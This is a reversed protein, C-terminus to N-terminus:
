SGARAGSGGTAGSRAGGRPGGGVGARPHARPPQGRRRGGAGAGGRQLVIPGGDPIGPELLQVTCGTVKAGHELAAEVAHMGGGFAPLLSPHVNLIADPFADLFEDSLIRNYGACVVLAVAPPRLRDRMARDRAREDRGYDGVPMVEAPVGWRGAMELAGADRRNSIVLAIRAPFGPAAAAACLADLNSGRGSALVGVRTGGSVPPDSPARGASPSRAWGSSRFAPLPRARRSAAAAPVVVVMGIAWTSPGGCRRPRSAAWRRWRPSCRRCRGPTSPRDPGGTGDPLIRPVNGLLGGGTIHALGRIEMRSRLERIAPLYSRHPELLLDALPARHGPARRGLRDRARGRHAAGALLRQHAPRQQAPRLLTDGVEIPHGDIIEDREVCGVIFGAIDYDGLAYLGPLEATEGGILACGADRAPPPRM